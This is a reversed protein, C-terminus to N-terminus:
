TREKKISQKTITKKASRLFFVIVTVDSHARLTQFFISIKIKFASEPFKLCKCKGLCRALIIWPEKKVLRCLLM